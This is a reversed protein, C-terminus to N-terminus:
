EAPTETNGGILAEVQKMYDDYQAQKVAIEQELAAKEVTLADIYAQRSAETYGAGEDVNTNTDDEADTAYGSDTMAAINKNNERIAAEVEKIKENWYETGYSNVAATLATILGDQVTKNYTAKMWAIYPEINAKYAEVYKDYLASYNKYTDGTLKTQVEKMLDLAEQAKEYNETASEFDDKLQNKYSMLDEEAAELKSKNTETPDEDFDEQATKVANIYGEHIPNDTKMGEDYDEKAQDYAPKKIALNREALKVAASIAEEDIVYKSQYRNNYDFGDYFGSYFGSYYSGDDYTINIKEAEPFETSIINGINESYDVNYANNLLYQVEYLVYYRTSSYGPNIPDEIYENLYQYLETTKLAEYAADSATKTNNHATNAVDVAKQYAPLAENAADLAKQAEERDTTKNENLAKLLAENQALEAKETEVFKQILAKTSELDHQATVLNANVDILQLKLGHDAKTDPDGILSQNKAITQNPRYGGNGNSIQLSGGGYMIVNANNILAAIKNQTALDAADTAAILEAKAKELKAQADILDAQAQTKAKEIDTELTAQSKQLELEKEQAKLDKIKALAAKYEANAEKVKAEANALILEADAQAQQYNALAGIQKAKAERIATVSASENDDVCSGLSLAGLLVAAMMFKKKM